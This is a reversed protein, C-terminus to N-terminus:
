PQPLNRQEEKAVSSRARTRTIAEHLHELLAGATREWSHASGWEVAARRLERYREQDRLLSLAASALADPAARTTVGTIGSRISDRLGPVDYAVAPTGLANAETVVLGWGERVSTALLLHAQGMKALLEDRSIGGLLEARPPLANALRSKLRGDGVVWLRAEPIQSSIIRFAEIAHDPRKNEILRGVFILTPVRSKRPAEQHGLGGQPIVSVRNVGVSLLDTRTSQSVALVDARTYPRYLLSEVRQAVAAAPPPLHSRWVDRALQHVLTATPIRRVRKPLWYPITNISELIIEPRNSEAVAPGRFHHSGDRLRGVRIVTVGDDISRRSCGRFRSAVLCVEHGNKVWLRAIEHVFAEAGGARPNARDRWNLIAVKM